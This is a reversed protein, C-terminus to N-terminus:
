VSAFVSFVKPDPFTPINVYRWWERREFCRRQFSKSGRTVIGSSGDDELWVLTWDGERSSTM